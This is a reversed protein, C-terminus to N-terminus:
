MIDYQSFIKLAINKIKLQLSNPSIVKVNGGFSLIVGIFWDDIPMKKNVIFKDGDEVIDVELFTDYVKAKVAKTFELCVFEQQTKKDIEIFYTNLDNSTIKEHHKADFHLPSLKLNRIRSVKFLRNSNRMKCFAYLYWNYSKFVLNIPEIERVTTKNEFSTYEMEIIFSNEIAYEINDFSQQNTKWLTIDFFHASKETKRKQMLYNMKDELGKISNNAYTLSLSHSIEQILQKESDSFLLTNLKYNEDIYFGGNTGRQSYIPIGALTLTDIDRYITRVSVQFEEAIDKALLFKRSLLAVIIYMLREIKM